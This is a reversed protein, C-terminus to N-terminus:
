QRTAAAVGGLHKFQVQFFFTDSPRVDRDQTFTRTFSAGFTICEDEYDLGIRHNLSGGGPELDRRTSAAFSWRRTIKSNLTATVEQRDTFEDTLGQQDIFLYTTALNLAPPGIRASVENRKPSWDENDVRFRYLVDLLRGPSIQVRGIIHSFNEDLGTGEGFRDDRRIRYSQGIFASLAGKRIGHVAGKVGYYFRQGGEVLDLGTFRNPSFVNTDDLEFDLSDENPIKKPNGGNPAVIIGAIPEILQSFRGENRVFPFRWDLGMQPFFRGTFGSLKNDSKDPDQVQDVWYADTQLSAFLTYAEGLRSIYPVQWGTKLSIRRSDTGETRTLALLNADFSWRGGKPGARGVHNFDLIPHIIPTEGFVDDSRLGQFFYANGAAYNRGRFGELFARSTLTDESGLDYRSLYTDDSALDIKLGGRWTDDIDTNLSGDFHGRFGKTNDEKTAHTASAEAHLLGGVFRHRYEGALVAGENTTIIPTITADYNPALNVFYPLRVIAGLASNSGYSPVLIGTKRKVTPDPHSLYPLYVVPVGYIEMFADTYQIEQQERDHTVKFAKVQWVPPREPHEKCSVCPTFVAKRFETRTGGIRRGGAAVLRSNDSMRIRITEVIGNKLDGSLETFEAFLVDDTADLLRVNGTATMKDTRQNYILSDALLVREGQSVEVNGTATVIGRERDHSVKDAKFLAPSERNFQSPNELQAISNPSLAVSGVLALAILAVLRM